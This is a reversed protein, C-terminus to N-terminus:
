KVKFMEIGLRSVLTIKSTLNSLKAQESLYEERLSNLKCVLESYKVYMSDLSETEGEVPSVPATKDNILIVFDKSGIWEFVGDSADKIRVSDRKDGIDFESLSEALLITGVPNDWKRNKLKIAADGSKILNVMDLNIDAGEVVTNYEFSEVRGSQKNIGFKLSINERIGKIESSVAEISRALEKVKEECPAKQSTLNKFETALENADMISYIEVSEEDVNEVLDFYEKKIWYTDEIDKRFIRIPSSQDKRDVIDVKMVEGVLYGYREKTAVVKLEGSEISSFMANSINIKTSM